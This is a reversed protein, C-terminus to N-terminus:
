PREIIRGLRFASEALFQRSDRRVTENGGFQRRLQSSREPQLFTERLRVFQKIADGLTVPHDQRAGKELTAPQAVRATSHVRGDWQKLLCQRGRGCHSVVEKGDVRRVHQRDRIGVSSV